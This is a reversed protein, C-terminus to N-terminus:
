EVYESLRWDDFWVTGRTPNDFSFKPIRIIAVYKPAATDPATFDILLREWDSSGERVPDSSAIVGNQGLIAIRPGEPSLLDGSKAYCELLYRVGPRLVILQKIEGNIRTTDRGSFALKLSRSGTRAVRTDLGIRAYETPGITWDFHEFNKVPDREFSGNWILSGNPSQQDSPSGVLDLWLTRAPEFQGAAILSKIFVASKTSNLKDQRNIGKFVELAEAVLKQDLFFQVMSLQSTPDNGAMQKLVELDNGSSRWLLDYAQPFLDDSGRTAIRFHGLSEELKSRRLLLNALEWNVGVHYPALQVAARLSREASEADGSLEQANGLLRRVKYDWPSYKVAMGVHKLVDALAQDQATGAAMEAEALRYNIRPSNPFRASAAALAERSITLRTDAMFRIIFHAYVLWILIFGILLIPTLLAIRSVLSDLKITFSM